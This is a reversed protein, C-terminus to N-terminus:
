EGVAAPTLFGSRTLNGRDTLVSALGPNDAFMAEAEEITPNAAVAPTDSVPDQASPAADAATPESVPADAVPEDAIIPEITIEDTM